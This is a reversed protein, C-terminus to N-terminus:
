TTMFIIITWHKYPTSKMKGVHLIRSKHAIQKSLHGNLIKKRCSFQQTHIKGDVLFEITIMTQSIRTKFHFIAMQDYRGCTCIAFRTYVEYARSLHCKRAASLLHFCITPSLQNWRNRPRITHIPSRNRAVNRKQLTQLPKSHISAAHISFLPPPQLPPSPPLWPPFLILAVISIFSWINVICLSIAHLLFGLANLLLKVSGTVNIISKLKFKNCKKNTGLPNKALECDTHM